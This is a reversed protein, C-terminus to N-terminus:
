ARERERGATAEARCRSCKIAQDVLKFRPNTHQMVDNEDLAIASAIKAIASDSDVIKNVIEDVSQGLRSTAM